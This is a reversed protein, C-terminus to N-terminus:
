LSCSLATVSIRVKLDGQGFNVATSEDAVLYYMACTYTTPVGNVVARWINFYKCAGGGADPARQNCATACATPDYEDLFVFGMYQAYDSLAIFSIVSPVSALINHIHAM